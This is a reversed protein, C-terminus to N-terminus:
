ADVPSPRSRLKRAIARPVFLFHSKLTGALGFYSVMINFRERLSKLKHKESLGDDLYDITVCKLNIRKGPRSAQICRLCWEYDASFSYRTDYHPAIGKRVMFAQHCVLMGNRYSIVTLVKPASLHRPRLVKGERDVIVTDGYVIDADFEKATDAYLKLTDRSHFSDGANLFIVYKGKAMDLGKNMAYYLGEDPESLTRLRRSALVRAKALTADTSAGDIIIHEFDQFTQEAVSKMTPEIVKEANFTITVISILPDSPAHNPKKRM